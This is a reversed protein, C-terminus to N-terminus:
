YDDGDYRPHWDPQGVPLEGWRGPRTEHAIPIAIILAPAAAPVPPTPHPPAASLRAGHEPTPGTM